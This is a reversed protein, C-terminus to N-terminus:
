NGFASRQIGASVQSMQRSYRTFMDQLKQFIEKIATSNDLFIGWAFQKDEFLETFQPILKDAGPNIQNHRLMLTPVREETGLIMEAPIIGNWEKSFGEVIYAKGRKDFLQYWVHAFAMSNRRDTVWGWVVDGDIDLESLRSFFLFVSDECDGKKSQRTEVPTQWYDTKPPESRYEIDFAIEKYAEYIQKGNNFTNTCWERYLPNDPISSKSSFHTTTLKESRTDEVPKYGRGSLFMDAYSIDAFVKVSYFDLLIISTTVVLLYRM